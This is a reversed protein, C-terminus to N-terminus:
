NSEKEFFWYKTETKKEGIAKRNETANIKARIKIIKKKEENEM